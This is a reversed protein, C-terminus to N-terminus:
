GAIVSDGGCIKSGVKRPKLTAKAGEIQDGNHKRPGIGNYGGHSGTRATDFPRATTDTGYFGQIKVTRKPLCKAKPSEVHGGIFVTRSPSTTTALTGSTDISVSSPIKSPGAVTIAAVIGMAAVLPLIPALKKV